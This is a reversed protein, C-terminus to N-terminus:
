ELKTRRPDNIDIVSVFIPMWRYIRFGTISAHPVVSWNIELTGDSMVSVSVMEPSQPAQGMGEFFSFMLWLLFAFKLVKM